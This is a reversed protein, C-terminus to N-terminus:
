ICSPLNDLNNPSFDDAVTSLYWKEVIVDARVDDVSTYFTAENASIMKVVESEPLLWRGQGNGPGGVYAIYPSGSSDPLKRVCDIDYDGAALPPPPPPPPSPIICANAQQSWYSTVTVGNVTGSSACVDCIEHWSTSNRPNVQWGDGYPDTLTEILEHTFAYTMQALTGYSVYAFPWRGGYQDTAFSHEGFPGSPPVGPPMVFVAMNAPTMYQPNNLGLQIDLLPNNLIATYMNAVDNLSFPNNPPNSPIVIPPRSSMFGGLAPSPGGPGAVGYQQLGSFYNTRPNTFADDLAAVSGFLDDLSPNLGPGNWASGWYFFLIQAYYLLSGGGNSTTTGPPADGPNHFSTDGGPLDTSASTTLEPVRVVGGPLAAASSPATPQLDLQRYPPNAWRRSHTIPRRHDTESSSM